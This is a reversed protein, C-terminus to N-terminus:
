GEEENVIELENKRVRTRKKRSSLIPEVGLWKMGELAGVELDSEIAGFVLVSPEPVEL